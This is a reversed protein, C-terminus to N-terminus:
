ARAEILASDITFSGDPGIAFYEVVDAGAGLQLSRLAAVNAPPTQMRAVWAPFDMPVRFTETGRVQFGAGGLMGHWQALSYDRVHSPDRLLELAQLWTDPLARDPAIVDLFVATGGPRLVRRAERLGASADHWHHTTYRSVVLDFSADAFPLREVRGAQTTVNALGRRAAEGRVVSLMDISLDYAIVSRVRPALLFAVHGAGCGLDLAQADPREGVRRALADLDEGHAHVPSTLYAAAQPGFQDTVVDDHSRPNM